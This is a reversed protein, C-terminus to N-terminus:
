PLAGACEQESRGGHREGQGSDDVIDAYAALQLGCAAVREGAQRVAVTEGGVAFPLGGGPAAGVVEQDQDEVAVM